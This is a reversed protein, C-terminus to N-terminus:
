DSEVIRLTTFTLSQENVTTRPGEASPMGPPLVLRITTDFPLADKTAGGPAVARVVLWRGPEAAKVIRNMQDDAAIEESTALRLTANASEPKLRLHALVAQPDIRQDFGLFMLPDRPMGTSANTPSANKWQPPPTAFNFTKTERLKNGLASATGAPITVTYNTAMPLRGGEAAPQFVLTQTGLWRWKGQPQPTLTVPVSAAAETQSSVAVMPQSFTISLMPALEVEGEPLFRTVELPATIKVPAPPADTSPLAFAAQITKGARPPPLSQERLKFDVTDSPDATLAPLRALLKKTEVESLATAPAIPNPSPRPEVTEKGESLRFRLGAEDTADTAQTEDADQAFVAPAATPLTAVLTIWVLLLSLASKLIM